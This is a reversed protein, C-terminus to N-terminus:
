SSCWDIAILFGATGNGGAAAASGSASSGGSGGAGRGTANQGAGQFNGFGGSGILTSGGCGSLGYADATGSSNFATVSGGNMGPAAIDGVAGATLGGVGGLAIGGSNSPGGGGGNAIVLAGLSTATGPNGANNGAAGGTGGTGITVAQNPNVQARTLWRESYGGAGGGGGAATRLAAVSATAGGGGGGGWARVWTFLMNPDPTYTGNASFTQVKPILATTLGGVGTVDSTQLTVAGTRTNFSTVAGAGTVIPSGNLTASGIIAVEGKYTTRGSGNAPDFDYDWYNPRQIVAGPPQPFPGSTDPMSHLYSWWPRVIPPAAAIPAAMGPVMSSEPEKVRPAMGFGDM